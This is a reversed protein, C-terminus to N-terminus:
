FYGTLIQKRDQASLRYIKAYFKSESAKGSVSESIGSVILHTYLALEMWDFKMAMLSDNFSGTELLTIEKIGVSVGWLELKCKGHFYKEDLPALVKTYVETEYLSKEYYLKLAADGAQAPNKVTRSSKFWNEM